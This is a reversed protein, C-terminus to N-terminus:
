IVFEILVENNLTATQVETSIYYRPLEPLGLKEKRAKVIADIELILYQVAKYDSANGLLALTVTFLPTSYSVPDLSM